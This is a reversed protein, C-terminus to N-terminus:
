KKRRILIRAYIEKGNIFGRGFSGKWKNNKLEPLLGYSIERDIGVIEFQGPCYKDLWSIPVGMVPNNIRIKYKM